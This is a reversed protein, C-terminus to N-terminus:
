QVRVTITNRANVYAPTLPKLASVTTMSWPHILVSVPYATIVVVTRPSVTITPIANPEAMRVPPPLTVPLVLLAPTHLRIAQPRCMIWV